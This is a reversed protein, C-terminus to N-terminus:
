KLETTIFEYNIEEGQSLPYIKQNIATYKDITFDTDIIIYNKLNDNPKRFRKINVPIITNQGSTGIKCININNRLFQHLSQDTDDNQLLPYSIKIAQIHICKSMISNLLSSYPVAKSYITVYRGIPNYNKIGFNEFNDSHNPSGSFIEAGNFVIPFGFYLGYVSISGFIFIEAYVYMDSGAKVSIPISKFKSLNKM